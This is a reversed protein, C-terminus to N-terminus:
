NTNCFFSSKLRAAKKLQSMFTYHAHTNEELPNSRGSGCGPTQQGIHPIYNEHAEIFKLPPNAARQMHLSYYECM